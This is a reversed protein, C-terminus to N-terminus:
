DVPEIMDVDIEVSAAQGLMDVQLVLRTAGRTTAVVGELGLLPGAMVRCKQGEKIFM